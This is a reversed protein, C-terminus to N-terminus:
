KLLLIPNDPPRPNQLVYGDDDGCYSAAWGQEDDSCPHEKYGHLDKNMTVVILTYEPLSGTLHSAHRVYISTDNARLSTQFGDERSHDIAERLWTRSNKWSPFLRAIAEIVTKQQFDVSDSETVKGDHLSPIPKRDVLFPGFHLEVDYEGHLLEVKYRPLKETVCLSINKREEWTCQLAKELVREISELPRQLPSRSPAAVVTDGLVCNLTIALILIHWRMSRRM